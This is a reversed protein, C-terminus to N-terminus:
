SKREAVDLLHAIVGDLWVGVHHGECAREASVPGVYRGDEGYLQVTAGPDRQALDHWPCGDPTSM